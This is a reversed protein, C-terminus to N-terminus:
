SETARPGMRKRRHVAWGGKVMSAAALVVAIAVAIATGNSSHPAAGASGTATPERTDAPALRDTVGQSAEIVLCSNTRFGDDSTAIIYAMGPVLEADVSTSTAPASPGTEVWVSPALDPGRWVEEVDVRARGQSVEAVTGVFVTEQGGILDEPEAACSGEAPFTGVFAVLFATVMLTLATFSTIRRQTSEMRAGM